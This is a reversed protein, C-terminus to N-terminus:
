WFILEKGIESQEILIQLLLPVSCATLRKVVEEEEQVSFSDISSRLYVWLHFQVDPNEPFDYTTRELSANPSTGPKHKKKTKLKAALKKQDVVYTTLFNNFCGAKRCIQVESIRLDGLLKDLGVLIDTGKFKM